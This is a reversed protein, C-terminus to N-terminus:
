FIAKANKYKLKSTELEDPTKRHPDGDHTITILPIPLKKSLEGLHSELINLNKLSFHLEFAKLLM